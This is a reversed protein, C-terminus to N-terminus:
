SPGARLDTMIYGVKSYSSILSGECGAEELKRRIKAFAVRLYNTDGIYEPGWVKRLLEAHTLLQGPKQALLWLLRFEVDTLRIERDAWHCARTQGNMRLPGNLALSAPAPRASTRKLVAQVRALLEELSFPKTVYDDAGLGFAATKKQVESRASLVIVPVASEERLSKLFAFGDMGPMMYDLIVLDPKRRDSRIRQLAEAGSAAPLVDYGSDRLALALVRRIHSEDDVVAILPRPQNDTM